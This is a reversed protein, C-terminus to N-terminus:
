SPNEDAGYRRETDNVGDGPQGDTDPPTNPVDGTDDSGHPAPAPADPTPADSM